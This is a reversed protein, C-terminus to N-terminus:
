QSILRGLYLCGKETLSCTDFVLRIQRLSKLLLVSNCLYKFAFDSLRNNSFNLDLQELAALGELFPSGTKMSKETIDNNMLNLKLEKLGSVRSVTKLFEIFGKDSIEASFPSSLVQPLHNSLSDTQAHSPM